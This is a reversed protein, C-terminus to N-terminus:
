IEEPASNRGKQTYAVVVVLVLLAVIFLYIELHSNGSNTGATNSMDSDVPNGAFSNFVTLLIAFISLAAKQFYKM